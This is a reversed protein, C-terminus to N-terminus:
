EPQLLRAAGPRARVQTWHAAKGARGQSLAGWSDAVARRDTLVSACRLRLKGSTPLHMRVRGWQM